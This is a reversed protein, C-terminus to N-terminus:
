YDIHDSANDLIIKRLKALRDLFFESSWLGLNKKDRAKLFPEVDSIAAQWDMSIIKEELADLYWQSSVQINQGAWPGTQNIANTLFQFNPLIARAIYWNFDYWDRGKTYKRCLLAHSKGSFNSSLDQTEVPCALPFDLYKIESQSGLPPNTDIELKITLKKEPNRKYALNLIKGISNDKLFMKQVVTGKKSKDIIEPYIGYLKCVSEIANMYPQWNFQLNPKKLIFDLDESFRGLNYFIRLATGGQFIAESFFKEDSLGNLIIEQFIEKLADEEEESTEPAYRNLREEIISVTGM